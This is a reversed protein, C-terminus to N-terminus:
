PRARSYSLQFGDYANDSLSMGEEDHIQIVRELSGPAHLLWVEDTSFISPGRTLTFSEVALQTGDEDYRAVTNDSRIVIWGTAEDGLGIGAIGGGSGLYYWQGLYEDPLSIVPDNQACGPLASIFLIVAAATARRSYHQMRTKGHM